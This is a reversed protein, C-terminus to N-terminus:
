QDPDVDNSLVDVVITQGQGTTRNDDVAIPAVNSVTWTFNESVSFAGDSATVIVAYPSEQSASSDVTGTLQGARTLTVGMPLGSATYNLSDGDVDDFSGTVTDNVFDSDDNNKDPIPTSTPPDNVQSPQDVFRHLWRSAQEGNVPEVAIMVHGITTEEGDTVGYSVVAMGNFDLNPSFRISNSEMTVNGYPSSGVYAVTLVDGDEDFDNATVDVLVPMDEMTTATDNM